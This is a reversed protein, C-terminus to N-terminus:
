SRLWRRGIREADEPPDTVETSYSRQWTRSGGPGEHCEFDLQLNLPRPFNYELMLVATFTAGPALDTRTLTTELAEWDGGVRRLFGRVDPQAPTSIVVSELRKGSLLKVPVEAYQEGSFRRRAPGVQFHPGEAEDRAALEAQFQRRALALHDEAARAQREATAASEKAADAQTQASRAQSKASIAQWFAVGAGAVAIGAPRWTSWDIGM